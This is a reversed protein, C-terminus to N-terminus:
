LFQDLLSVSPGSSWLILVNLWLSVTHLRQRLSINEVSVNLLFFQSNIRINGRHSWSSTKTDPFANSNYYYFMQLEPRRRGAVADLEELPCQSTGLGASVCWAHGLEAGPGRGLDFHRFCSVQLAGLSVRCTGPPCRTLHRKNRWIISSFSLLCMMDSGCAEVVVCMMKEHTLSELYQM